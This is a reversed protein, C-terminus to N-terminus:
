WGKLFRSLMALSQAPRTSPTMHGAGHVTTFRFRDGFKVTFGAVQDDVKYSAWEESVDLGLNWIWQQSGLTACVADDDGSYVMLEIDKQQVLKQYYPMMPLNVDTSNYQSGVVNSCMGWTVNLDSPIHLASQVDERNLYTEVYNSTCPEYDQPFYGGVGKFGQGTEAKSRKMLSLFQHRDDRGRAKETACVPFDLAYPDMGSVLNEFEDLLSSCLKLNEPQPRDTDMNFCENKLYQDFKPKPLLNHYGYTGIEGLNRYPMYTLPNGVAFGRFNVAKDVNHTVIEYALTPIYHGGYSESTLYFPSKKYADFRDMWGKVFEWNDEAAQKDGYAFGDIKSNASFGVGAPQEIFIVNAIENWSYPNKVLEGNENPRYPGMESLSGGVGSCGPGGNTWLLTPAETPDEVDAEM